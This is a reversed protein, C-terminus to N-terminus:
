KTTSSSNKYEGEGRKKIINWLISLGTKVAGDDKLGSSEDLISVVLLLFTNEVVDASNKNAISKAIDEIKKLFDMDNVKLIEKMANLKLVQIRMFEQEQETYVEEFADVAMESNVNIIQRRVKQLGEGIYDKVDYRKAEYQKTTIM